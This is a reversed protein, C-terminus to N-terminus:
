GMYSCLKKLVVFGQTSVSKSGLKWIYPDLTGTDVYFVPFGFDLTYKVDSLIKLSNPGFDVIKDARLYRLMPTGTARIYEVSRIEPNIFDDINPWVREFNQRM